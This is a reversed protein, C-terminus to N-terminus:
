ICTSRRKLADWLETKTCGGPCSVAVGRRSLRQIWLGGSDGCAPCVPATFFDKTRSATWGVGAVHLAVLLAVTADREPPKRHKRKRARDQHDPFLHSMTLGISEVVQRPDCDHAMCCMLARGDDGRSVTLNWGDGDHAPCRASFKELTGRPEYGALALRSFLADM